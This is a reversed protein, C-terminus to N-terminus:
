DTQLFGNLGPFEFGGALGRLGDPDEPVGRILCELFDAPGALDESLGANLLVLNIAENKLM